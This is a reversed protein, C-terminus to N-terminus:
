AGAAALHKGFSAADINAGCAIVGVRQGAFRGKLRGILAATSAAGAPEVALKMEEFLLRMARRLDDDSVLVLEDVNARCLEFSYPFARPAGLSDAITAVKEIAQPSGARFSRYMSDAGEPEVGIVTCGPQLQKIAAAMGGCLGGGGIPVILVDLPGAQEAFELSVTATGQATLPGEFPHVYARGEEAMIREAEAFAGAIDDTLVVEAGYAKAMAMRVPSATRPMAVKASAGAAQAAYAVAIAHNGGSSATVGRALQEPSLGSIVNLAGRPKFSGTLQFLELKIFVDVDGALGTLKPGRWNHVPTTLVREGLRARCARIAEISLHPDDL